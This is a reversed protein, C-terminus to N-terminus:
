RGARAQELSAEAKKLLAAKRERRADRSRMTASTQPYAPQTVISVDFLREIATVTVRSENGVKDWTEGDKAVTFAWSMQSVDGRQMAVRLDRAYTTDGAEADVHLGQPTERLSLTGSSTRALVRNSDHNQLLVVDPNAALAHKFAGRQIRETYGGLDESPQGFVSAYGTIHLGGDPSDRFEVGQLPFTRTRRETREATATSM